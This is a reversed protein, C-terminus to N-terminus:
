QLMMVSGVNKVVEVVVIFAVVDIADDGRAAAKGEAPPGGVASLRLLCQM